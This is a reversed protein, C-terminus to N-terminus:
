CDVLENIPFRAMQASCSECIQMWTGDAEADGGEMLNLRSRVENETRTRSEATGVACINGIVECWEFVTMQVRFCESVWDSVRFM